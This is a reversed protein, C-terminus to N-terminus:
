RDDDVHPTGSVPSCEPVHKNTKYAGLKVDMHYSLTSQKIGGVGSVVLM